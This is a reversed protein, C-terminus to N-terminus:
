RLSIPLADAFKLISPNFMDGSALGQLAATTICLPCM